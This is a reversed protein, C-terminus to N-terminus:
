LEWSRFFRIEPSLYSKNVAIIALGTSADHKKIAAPYTKEDNFVVELSDYDSPEHDAVIITKARDTEGLLESISKRNGGSDLKDARGVLVVDDNFTVAHDNLIEFQGMTGPVLVSDVEGDFEIREPSVIKLKLM